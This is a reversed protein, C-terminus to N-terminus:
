HPPLPPPPLPSPPAPLPILPPPQPKPSTTHLLSSPHSNLLLLPSHLVPNPFRVLGSPLSFIRILSQSRSSRISSPSAPSPFLHILYRPSRVRYQLRTSPTWGSSLSRTVSNTKPELFTDAPDLCVRCSRRGPLDWDVPPASLILARCIRRPLFSLLFSSHIATLLM